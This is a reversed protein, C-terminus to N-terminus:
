VEIALILGLGNLRALITTTPFIWKLHRLLGVLFLSYLSTDETHIIQAIGFVKWSRTLRLSVLKRVSMTHEKKLQIEVVNNLYEM